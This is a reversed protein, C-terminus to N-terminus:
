KSWWKRLKHFSEMGFIVPFLYRLVRPNHWMDKCVLMLAKARRNTLLYDRILIYDYVNRIEKQYVSLHPTEQAKQYFQQWEPVWRSNQTLGNANWRYRMLPDSIYRVEGFCSLRVFFDFDEILSFRNDIFVGQDFIINKRIMAGSMGIGYAAILEKMPIIMDEKGGPSLWENGGEFNIFRTYAIATQPYNNMTEVCKKLYGPLWLDDADIFAVYEGEAKLLALNRAEGLPTKYESKFYKIRGDHYSNVIVPTSDTSCNDWFVLEWNLYTQAMVSDMTERLYKKGNFCNIIVSVLPNETM